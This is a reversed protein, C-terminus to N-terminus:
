SLGIEFPQGSVTEVTPDSQHEGSHLTPRSWNLDSCSREGRLANGIVSVSSFSMAAAAIMPSLLDWLVSLSSRSRHFALRTTSLTFFLNQKINGM